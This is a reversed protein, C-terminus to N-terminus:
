TVGHPKLAAMKRGLLELGELLEVSEKGELGPADVFFV